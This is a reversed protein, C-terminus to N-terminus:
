ERIGHKISSSNSRKVRMNKDIQNMKMTIKIIITIIIITVIILSSKQGICIKNIIVSTKDTDVEAEVVEIDEVAELTTIMEEMDLLFTVEM